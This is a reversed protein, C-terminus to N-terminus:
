PNVLLKQKKEGSTSPCVGEFKNRQQPPHQRTKRIETKTLQVGKKLGRGSMPYTMIALEARPSNSVSMANEFKKPKCLKATSAQRKLSKKKVLQASETKIQKKRIWEEQEKNDQSEELVTLSIASKRKLRNSRRPYFSESLSKQRSDEDKVEPLKKRGARISAEQKNSVEHHIQTSREKM